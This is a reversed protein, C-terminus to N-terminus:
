VEIRGMQLTKFNVEVITHFAQFEESFPAVRPGSIPTYNYLVPILDSEYDEFSKIIQNGFYRTLYTNAYKRNSITAVYNHKCWIDIQLVPSSETQATYQGMRKGPASVCFISIRPFSTTSLESDPKDSYIWNSTGQKYTIAVADSLTLATYFIITQAQYDWYYDQWKTKSTGNVTLGTIVAATGVTPTLTIVTQGATATINETRSAEARARPDTLRARLFDTIIDEPDLYYTTM